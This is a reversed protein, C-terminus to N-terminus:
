GRCRSTFCYDVLACVGIGLLFGALVDGLWHAGVVVRSLGVAVVWLAVITKVWIRRGLGLYWGIITARVTHGSPFGYLSLHRVRDLFSGAGSTVGPRLEGLGVKFSVVLVMGVFLSVLFRYYIRPIREGSRTYYLPAAIVLLAIAADATSTLIIWSSSNSHPLWDEAQQDLRSLQGTFALITMASYLLLATISIALLYRNKSSYSNGNEM